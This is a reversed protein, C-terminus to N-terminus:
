KVHNLLIEVIREAARGDGFTSIGKGRKEYIAFDDLLRQTETFIKDCDTGVLRAIGAEVAEPRETKERMVLIPKGLSSAEEQIGGSDTLVLYCQNVLSSHM